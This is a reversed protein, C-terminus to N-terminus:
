AFIAYLFSYNAMKEQRKDISNIREAEKM